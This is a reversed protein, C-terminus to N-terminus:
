QEMLYAPEYGFDKVFLMTEVTLFSPIEEDSNPLRLCKQGTQHASRDRAIAMMQQVLASVRFPNEQLYTKESNQYAGSSGAKYPLDVVGEAISVQHNRLQFKYCIEDYAGM